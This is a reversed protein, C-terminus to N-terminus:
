VLRELIHSGLYTIDGAGITVVVDGSQFAPLRELWVGNPICACLTKGSIGKLPKEGASYIETVYVVDAADFAHAFSDWFERIRHYRHPQFIAIVRRDGVSRKLSTLMLKIETPHHAYDDYVTVGGIKGKKELRRKVGAFTIFAQRVNNESLGLRHAAAWVGCANLAQYEGILPLTIEDFVKGRHAISFLLGEESQETDLLRWDARNSRGYTEGSLKLDRLIPDDICWFLHSVKQAFTHFGKILKEETQWFDLHEKGLSTLIANGGAYDLFSGDSEDAEAVFLQGRGHGGNKHTNKLIGGVAYSPHGHNALLVWTLLASTSTKGHVGAILWKDKKRMLKKLLQSRHYIVCGMDRALCLRPHNYPIASSYVIKSEPHWVDSIVAGRKALHKVIASQTQDEGSVPSGKDILIHALASMGM